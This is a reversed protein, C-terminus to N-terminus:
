RRVSRVRLGSNVARAYTHYSITYSSKISICVRTKMRGFAVELFNGLLKPPMPQRSLVLRALYADRASVLMVQEPRLEFAAIGMQATVQACPVWVNSPHKQGTVAMHPVSTFFGIALFRACWNLLTRKRQQRMWVQM